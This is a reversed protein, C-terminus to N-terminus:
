KLPTKKFRSKGKDLSFWGKIREDCKKQLLNDNQFYTLYAIGLISSKAVV